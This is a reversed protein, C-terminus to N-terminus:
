RHNKMLCISRSIINRRLSNQKNLKKTLPYLPLLTMLHCNQYSWIQSVFIANYLLKDSLLWRFNILISALISQFNMKRKPLLCTQMYVYVYLVAEVLTCSMIWLIDFPIIIIEQSISSYAAYTTSVLVKKALIDQLLRYHIAFHSCVLFLQIHEVLM